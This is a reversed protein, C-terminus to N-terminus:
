HVYHSVFLLNGCRYSLVLRLVTFLFAFEFVCSLLVSTDTLAIFTKARSSVNGGPDQDRIWTTQTYAM